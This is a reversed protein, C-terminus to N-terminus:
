KELIGTIYDRVIVHLKPKTEAFVDHAFAVEAAGGAALARYIPLQFKQKGQYNLFARVAPFGAAYRARAVLKCWRLMIEANPVDTGAVVGETVRMHADVAAVAAADLGAALLEDLFALAVHTGM